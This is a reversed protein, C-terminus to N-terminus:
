AACNPCRTERCTSKSDTVAFITSATSLLPLDGRCRAHWHPMCSHASYRRSFPAETDLGVSHADLSVGACRAQRHPWSWVSCTNFCNPASRLVFLAWPRVGSSSALLHFLCIFPHISTVFFHTFLRSEGAGSKVVLKEPLPQTTACDRQM